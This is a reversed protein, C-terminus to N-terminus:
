LNGWKIERQRSYVFPIYWLILNLYKLGITWYKSKSIEVEETEPPTQEIRVNKVDVWSPPFVWLQIYHSIHCNRATNFHFSCPSSVDNPIQNGQLMKVKQSFETWSKTLDDETWKFWGNNPQKRGLKRPKMHIIVIIFTSQEISM